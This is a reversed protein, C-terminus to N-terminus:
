DDRGRSKIRLGPCVIFAPKQLTGEFCPGGFCTRKDTEQRGSERAKFRAGTLAGGNRRKSLPLGYRQASSIGRATAEGSDERHPFRTSIRHSVGISPNKAPRYTQLTELVFSIGRYPCGLRSDPELALEVAVRTEKPSFARREPPVRNPRQCSPQVHWDHSLPNPGLDSAIECFLGRMKLSFCNKCSISTTAM